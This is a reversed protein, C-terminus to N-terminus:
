CSRAARARRSVAEHVAPDAIPWVRHVTGDADSVEAWPDAAATAPELHPWANGEHLIFIPSMSHATARTLRLRDEKPGPQTREHPGSAPRPRLRHGPDPRSLWAPDPGRRRARHLGARLGLDDARPRPGPDGGGGLGRMTEAAHEYIDDGRAGRCTSSSWTTPPARSAAAGPQAADIVDYPPAVVDDIAVREPDYHVAHLPRVEAM